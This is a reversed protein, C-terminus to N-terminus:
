KTLIESLAKKKKQGKNFKQKKKKESTLGVFERRPKKERNPQNIRGMKNPPGEGGEQFKRKNMIRRFAGTEEGGSANNDFQRPNSMDGYNGRPNSWNGRGNPGNGRGNPGNGRGNPGNGRMNPGNGRGVPGNGRGNPGNGRMNPGNQGKGRDNFGKKGSNPNQTCRKVRMIRNKITLDEETLALALEVGDKSAFNVYGFGKGANTKRDRVIRVSEIEGCGQFKARLAEDELAFPINGVFVSCKPDHASGSTDSRSVRLHHENMLTNNASLAQDVSDAHKYKIYVNVTTREPHLENKIVALKPTVTADKVPVTRIRVTEIDGYKSFLKKVEKKCKKSFPVNGVFLTRKIEDETVAHKEKPEDSKAKQNEKKNTTADEEEDSSEEPAVELAEKNEDESQIDDDSEHESDTEQSTIANPNVKVEEEQNTDAQNNKKSKKKSKLKKAGTDNNETDPKNVESTISEQEEHNNNLKKKKNKNKKKKKSTTNDSNKEIEDAKDSNETVKLNEKDEEITEEHTSKSRKRKMPSKKNSDEQNISDSVNEADQKSDVTPETQISKRKKKKLTNGDTQQVNDVKIEESEKAPTVSEKLKNHKNKPSMAKTMNVTQTDETELQENLHKKVKDVVPSTLSNNSENLTTDVDPNQFIRKPSKKVIAKKKQVSPSLFISRDDVLESKPTVNPSQPHKTPTLARKVIKPRSPTVNGSILAAVSGVVYDM